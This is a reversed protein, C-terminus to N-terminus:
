KVNRKRRCIYYKSFTTQRLRGNELTEKLYAPLFEDYKVELLHMGTQLVPCRVPNKDFFGAYDVGSAINKDFTIRVNGAREVFPYREYSVIVKATMRRTLGLVCLERILSDEGSEASLGAMVEGYAGALILEYQEKTLRASLKRTKQQKKIKKELKIVDDLGNYCRIRYKARPDVGTENKYYCTDYIDDFYISRIEYFGKEGAHPDPQMMPAIRSKLLTWEAENCLFKYEHRYKIEKEDSQKELHGLMGM